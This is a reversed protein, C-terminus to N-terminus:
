RSTPMWSRAATWRASIAAPIRACASHMRAASMSRCSARSSARPPELFGIMGGFHDYHGHSLVMADFRSPDIKLISMNNNLVEPTYGFDILVHGRRAAPRCSRTCRSAGSATSRPRPPADPTTNGRSRREITLSGRKENPVFQIVVNDTVIRVALRDVEPM